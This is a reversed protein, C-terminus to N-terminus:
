KKLLKVLFKLIRPLKAFIIGIVIFALTYIVGGLLDMIM